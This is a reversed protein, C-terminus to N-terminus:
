LHSSLAIQNSAKFFIGVLSQLQVDVIVFSQLRVDNPKILSVTVGCILILSGLSFLWSLLLADFKFEELFILLHIFM